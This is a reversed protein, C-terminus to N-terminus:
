PDDGFYGTPISDEEVLKVDGSIHQEIKYTKGDAVIYDATDIVRAIYETNSEIM